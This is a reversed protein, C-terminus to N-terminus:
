TLWGSLWQELKTVIRLSNTTDRQFKLPSCYLVNLVVKLIFTSELVLFIRRAEQFFTFFLVIWSSFVLYLVKFSISLSTSYINCIAVIFCSFSVMCFPVDSFFLSCNLYFSHVLFCWFVLIGTIFHFLNDYLILILTINM